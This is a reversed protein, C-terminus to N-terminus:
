ALGLEDRLGELITRRDTASMMRERFDENMLRRALTSFVKMHTGNVDSERMALLIVFRVPKGDLSNWDVPNTLRVVGISSASVADTRCHPVAFGFGLGTSYTDERAWIAAELRSPDQARGAAFIADIVEKIAEDRSVSDSDVIILEPDLLCVSGMEGYFSALLGEVEAIGHCAMAQELLGRCSEASLRSIGDKQAAIDPSAMSLEDLGLGVLLPLARASRAMEGCMGVWRGNKLADQVIKNLLRLFSPHLANFLGAVEDSGRDVALYNQMLDNTGISFFDVEVSLQDIIFAASPVEVMIGVKMAPDFEVGEVSLENQVETIQARVWRVEDLTGVM